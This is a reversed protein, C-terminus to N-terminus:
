LSKGRAEEIMQIVQPLDPLATHAKQLFKLNELVSEFVVRGPIPTSAIAKEYNKIADQSKSLALQALALDYYDWYGEPKGVAIRGTAAKEADEFYKRAEAVEGLHWSLSAINSLAYSSNPNISYAQKYRALARKYEEEAQKDNTLAQWYEGRRRYLGGFIAYTDDDDPNLTIAKNLCKVAEDYDGLEHMKDGRRRYALGLERWAETYDANAQTAVTFAKIADDFYGAGSYIRGLVYNVQDDKPSFAGAKRYNAIAEKISGKSMLRDGLGLYILSGHTDTANKRMDELDKRIQEKIDNIDKLSIIGFFALGASVLTLAALVIGLVTLGTIVITNLSQAQNNAANAQNLIANADPTPTTDAIGISHASVSTHPVTIWLIALLLLALACIWKRQMDKETHTFILECVTRQPETSNEGLRAM